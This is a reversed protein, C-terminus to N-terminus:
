RDAPDARSEGDEFTNGKWLVGDALRGVGYRSSGRYFRNNIVRITSADGGDSFGHITFNGGKCWNHEVLIDTSGQKGKVGQIFVASNSKTDAEDIPLEFYNGIIKVNSGGRIQVGDAHATPSKYGLTHVWNGEIVCDHGPKFGDGASQYVVNARATFGDGYVGASSMNYIECREIVLNQANQCQIGYRGGAADILCNRIIVNKTDNAVVGGTIFLNEIVQDSVATVKRSIKLNKQDAVGTNDPGPQERDDAPKILVKPTPRAVVAPETTPQGLTLAQASHAIPATTPELTVDVSRTTPSISLQQEPPLPHSSVNEEGSWERPRVLSSQAPASAQPAPSTSCSACVIMLLATISASLSTHAFFIRKM